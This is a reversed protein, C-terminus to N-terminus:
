AGGSTQRTLDVCGVRALSFLRSFEVRWAGQSVPRAVGCTGGGAGVRGWAGPSHRCGMARAGRAWGVGAERAWGRSGLRRVRAGSQAAGFGRRDTLRNALRAMSRTNVMWQGLTTWDVTSWKQLSLFINEVYAAHSPSTRIAFLVVFLTTPLPVIRNRMASLLDIVNISTRCTGLSRFFKIKMPISSKIPQLMAALSPIKLIKLLFLSIFSSHVLSAVPACLCAFCACPCKSSGSHYLLVLLHKSVRTSTQDSLVLAVLAPYGYSLKSFPSLASKSSHYM